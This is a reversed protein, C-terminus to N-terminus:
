EMPGIRGRRSRVEVRVIRGGDDVLGPRFQGKAPPENAPRVDIANARGLVSKALEDKEACYAEPSAYPLARIRAAVARLENAFETATM